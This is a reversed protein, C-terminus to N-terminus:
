IAKLIPKKPSNGEEAWGLRVRVKMEATRGSDKTLKIIKNMGYKASNRPFPSSFTCQDLAIIEGM